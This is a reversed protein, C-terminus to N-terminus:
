KKKNKQPMANIKAFAYGEESLRSKIDETAKLIKGRSIYDGTNYQQTSRSNRRNPAILKGAVHLKM